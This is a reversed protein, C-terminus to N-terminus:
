LWRSRLTSSFNRRKVETETEIATQISDSVFSLTHRFISIFSAFLKCCFRQFRVAALPNREGNVALVFQLM